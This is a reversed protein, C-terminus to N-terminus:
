LNKLRVLKIRIEGREGIEKEMKVPIQVGGL